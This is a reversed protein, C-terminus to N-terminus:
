QEQKNCFISNAVPFQKLISNIEEEVKNMTPDNHNSKRAFKIDYPNFIITFLNKHEELNGEKGRLFDMCLRIDLGVVQNLNGGKVASLFSEYDNCTINNSYSKEKIYVRFEQGYSKKYLYDKYEYKFQKNKEDDEEVLKKLQKNLQDCYQVLYSITEITPVINSYDFENNIVAQSSFSDDM